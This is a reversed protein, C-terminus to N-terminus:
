KYITRLEYNDSVPLDGFNIVATLTMNFEHKLYLDDPSGSKLINLNDPNSVFLKYGKGPEFFKLDGIWTNTGSNYEAFETQGKIIDGNDTTLSSLVVDVPQNEQKPYGIWNWKTNLPIQIDTTPFDGILDLTDAHASLYILYGSALNIDTLTGKWGTSQAYQAYNNQSKLTLENLSTPPTLSEFTKSVSMDNSQKNVSIWNWGKSLIFDQIRGSPHLIFPHEASGIVGDNFFTLEEIAGYEIGGLGDWMRFKIVDDSHANRVHYQPFNIWNLYFESSTSLIRMKHSGENITLNTRITTYTDVNGTNPVAISQAAIGDLLVTIGNGNNGSAVRFEVDFTGSKTAYVDYEGWFDRRFRSAMSSVGNDSINVDRLSRNDVYDEAEIMSGNHGAHNSSVNIFAAYKNLDPVFEIEGVGRLEGDIFAAIKDRLGTSLNVDGNDSSFQATINMNYEFDSHNVGWNIDQAYLELTVNLTEPVNDVMAIVEGNYHGPTLGEAATFSITYNNEPLVSAMTVSPILWEPWQTVEFAKGITASNDLQATIVVLEGEKASTSVTNPNWGVPSVNVLFSWKTPYDQINGSQDKVGSVEATLLIGELEPLM